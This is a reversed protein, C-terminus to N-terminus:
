CISVVAMDAGDETTVELVQADEPTIQYTVTYGVSELQETIVEALLEANSIAKGQRDQRATAWCYCDASCPASYITYINGDEDKAKGMPEDSYGRIFNFPEIITLWDKNNTNVQGAHEDTM